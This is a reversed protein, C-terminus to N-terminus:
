AFRVSEVVEALMAASVLSVSRFRLLLGGVVILSVTKAVTRRSRRSLSTWDLAAWLLNQCHWFAVYNFLLRCSSSALIAIRLAILAHSRLSFGARVDMWLLKLQTALEFALLAEVAWAASPPTQVVVLLFQFHRVCVLLPLAASVIAPLLHVFRLWVFSM